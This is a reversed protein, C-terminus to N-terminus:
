CATFKFCVHEKGQTLASVFPQMEKKKRGGEEAIVEEGMGGFGLDFKLCWLM